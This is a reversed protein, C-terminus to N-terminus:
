NSNQRSVIYDAWDRKTADAMGSGKMLWSQLMIPAAYFILSKGYGTYLSACVDKGELIAKLCEEQEPYLSSINLTDCVSGIVRQFNANLLVDSAM